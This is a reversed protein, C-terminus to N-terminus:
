IFRTMCAIEEDIHTHVELGVLYIFLFSLRSMTLLSEKHKYM